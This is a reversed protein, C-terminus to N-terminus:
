NIPHRIVVIADALPLPDDPLKLQRLEEVDDRVVERAIELM